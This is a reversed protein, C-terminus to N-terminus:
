EYELTHSVEVVALCSILLCIYHLPSRIYYQEEGSSAEVLPCMQSNVANEIAHKLIDCHGYTTSTMAM